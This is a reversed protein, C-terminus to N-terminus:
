GAADLVCRAELRGNQKFYCGVGAQRYAASLIIARHGPSAMWDAVTREPPWSGVGRWLVEGVTPAGSYGAARMRGLPDSGNATHTLSDFQLLTHAYSEAAQTLAANPIFAALGRSTRELNVLALM